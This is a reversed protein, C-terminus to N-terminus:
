SCTNDLYKSLFNGNKLAYFILGQLPVRSFALQLVYRGCHIVVAVLDYLRDCNIADDSQLACFVVLLVSLQSCAQLGIECFTSM